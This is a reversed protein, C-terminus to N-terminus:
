WDLRTLRKIEQLNHVSGPHSAAYAGGRASADVVIGFQSSNTITSSQIILQGQDRPQNQDGYSTFRQSTVLGSSTPTAVIANGTLHLRNSTSATGTATGDSLTAKINLIGQVGTSNIANRLRAAVSYAEEAGRAGVAGAVTNFYIVSAGSLEPTTGQQDLFQFTIRNIGDSLTLLSGDVIDAADAMILSLGNIERDNTNITQMTTLDSARRIELDYAGISLQGATSVPNNIFGQNASANFVQEGREAFGILIKDILIGGGTNGQGAANGVFVATDDGSLSKTLRLAPANTVFANRGIIRVLDGSTPFEYVNGASFVGALTQQIASAVQAATMTPTITVQIRGPTIGNAGDVVVGGTPLIITSGGITVRNSQANPRSGGIATITKQAVAAATDLANVVITNLGPASAYTWTTGNLRFTSGIAAAGTPVVLTPGMEFEFTGTGVAFSQGDRLDGGPVTRLEIGEATNIGLNAAGASTFEFRLRLNSKGAYNDLEVRVQRLGPANNFLRIGLNAKNSALISWNGPSDEVFVRFLDADTGDTSLQYDFYLTPRDAAVYGELSFPDSIISGHAGGPFNYNGIATSPFQLQSGALTWPNAQFTSFALGRVNTIGTNIFSTLVGSTTTFVNAAAGNLEFAFVGGGTTIAFLKDAYRGGDVTQPGLTLGAFPLGGSTAIQTGVLGANVSYLFGSDTVVFLQNGFYAMGTITGAVGTIQGVETQTSGAGQYAQNDGTRNAGIVAGTTPNLQYLINIDYPNVKSAAAPVPVDARTGIAFLQTGAGRYAMAEFNIGANAAVVNGDAPDPLPPTGVLSEFNTIIGDDGIITTAGTETNIQLYNGTAATTAAAVPNTTLTFLIGDDRMAIDGTQSTFSGVNRVTTGAAPNVTNINTTGGTGSSVFLRLDTLAFPTAGGAGFLVGGSTVTQLPQLRVNTNTSANDFYQDLVAPIRTNNYVALSYNGPTLVVSGIFPDFTGVSGRSLDEIGTGALPGKQDDTINSDRGILVLRGASDYVAISLNARTLGDAYDIDFEVPVQATGLRTDIPAVTFTYFDVDATNSITGRVSIAARDTQMLNGLPNATSLLDNGEVEEFEGALPSHIPQGTVVIGNTAYRIGAYTISTGAFEDTEQLRLQLQYVGKTKGNGILAPNQLDPRNATGSASDVNSSRVRIFYNGRIGSTGSLVVRMGADGRNTTYTDIGNAPDYALGFAQVGSGPATYVPWAAAAEDFSNDSQALILGNSDLLEVVTDLTYTTRDIDIWVQTGAVGSFSYVDVDSNTKILGHATFGLRLNEDGSKQDEALAGLVEAIGPNGNADPLEANESEHEVTEKVNRDHSFERINIGRWAGATGTSLGNNNTDKQVNGTLNKGAGISDDNLSTMVVPFRPQGIVHLMGGIRDTIDLPSGDATFGANAGQLKIVLSETPSSELRLGSFVHHNPIVVENQLVHVIDTDDWVSETTLTEGRVVMGNTTNGGLSNDRILPGQNDIYTTQNDILGTSRGYDALLESTLANVNINIVPGGNNRFVNDLIVPQSGRVFITAASHTNFGARTDNVVVGGDANSDFVTNRVRVNAQHIELVNFGASNSGTPVTGGGYSILAQDISATAMNGVYIGGWNGASPTAGGIGDNNTDFTGGAGFQDDLRSTIIVQHGEVGEAILQAGTGVQIRSGQMKVVVGPDIGLRADLRARNRSTASKLERALNLGTDVFSTTSRDVEGALVYTGNVGSLSRYIRRGSYTGNAVPLQGLQISGTTIGSGTPNFTITPSDASEFGTQDVFVIRYHQPVTLDLTGGVTKNVTVLNVVPVTTETVAGGPTGQIELNQAIVHVIDANDFRGPVTLKVTQGGAPTLVRIFLGNTSNGTLLNGYIEPGVRKYDTTFRNAANDDQYQATNFTIEEFSDPDASIASDAGNSITNHLITPQSRDMMISNITQQVSDLTVPGGGYTIDAFGVYNLFIGQNEYSFRSQARDVQNRFTIGGWDGAQGSTPLPSTDTGINENLWSTFTVHNVPTGLIQLANQSRDVAASSSGVGILAQRLKFVAGGDIMLTVDKPVELTSGDELAQNATDFGIQYPLNDELTMVDNDAGGNGAVRVIQGKTAASLADKIFGFPTAAMGDTVQPLVGSRSAHAAATTANQARLVTLVNTTPNIATIQMQENDIRIFQNVSFPLVTRVAIQTTSANIAVRLTSVVSKDVILTNSDTATRLWFNFAGGPQGDHDGDFATVTTDLITVAVDPRFNVRIDYQGQSTGGFGSDTVTPDYNDNGKSSIGLFYKGADLNLNFYSDSSFYDDNQAILEYTGDLNRRYLRLVSDLNSASMQREAVVEASFTGTVPVDFEYLDVDTGDPRYLYQGHVIDHNGPYSPEINNGPLAGSEIGQGM